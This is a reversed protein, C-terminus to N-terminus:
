KRLLIDNIIEKNELYFETLTLINNALSINDRKAISVALSILHLMLSLIVIIKTNEELARKMKDGKKRLDFFRFVYILFNM